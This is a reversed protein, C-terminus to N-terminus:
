AKSRLILRFAVESGAIPKQFTKHEPGPAIYFLDPVIRSKV